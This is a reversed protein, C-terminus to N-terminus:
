RSKMQEEKTEKCAKRDLKIKELEEVSQWFMPGKNEASETLPKNESKQKGHGTQTNMYNNGKDDTQERGTREAIKYNENAWTKQDKNTMGQPTAGREELAQFSNFTVIKSPRELSYM